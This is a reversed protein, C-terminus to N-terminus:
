LTAIVNDMRKNVLCADDIIGDPILIEMPLTTNIESHVRFVKGNDSSMFFKNTKPNKVVDISIAGIQEKFSVISIRTFETTSAM